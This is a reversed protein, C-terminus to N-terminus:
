WHGWFDLVVVAGRYERLRMPRGNTDLGEIEPARMGVDLGVLAAAGPDDDGVVSRTEPRGAKPRLRALGARALDAYTKKRLYRVDGYDTALTEYLAEAEERPPKASTAKEQTGAEGGGEELDSEPPRKAKATLVTALAYCAQARAERHPSKALAARLM